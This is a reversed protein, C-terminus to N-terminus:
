RNSWLALTGVMLAAATEVKLVLPGLSAFHCGVARLSAYERQSFDGEPGIYVEMEGRPQLQRELLDWLPRADPQLAGCLRQAGERPVLAQDLRLPEGLEPLWPNGSQKLAEVLIAQWREQKRDAREAPVAAHETLLPSIRSVGLEVAKQLIAPFTKGKPVAVLLHVQLAPSPIAQFSEVALRGGGAAAAVRCRARAGRGNLLEVLEGDRVRRVRFLHHREERDLEPLTEGGDWHHCFVRLM